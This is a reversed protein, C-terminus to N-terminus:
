MSCSHFQFYRTPTTPYTQLIVFLVYIYVLPQKSLSAIFYIYRTHFLPPLRQSITGLCNVVKSSRYCTKHPLLWQQCTMGSKSSQASIIPVILLCGCSSVNMLTFGLWLMLTDLGRKDWVCVVQKSPDTSRDSVGGVMLLDHVYQLGQLPSGEHNRPVSLVMPCCWYYFMCSLGIVIM